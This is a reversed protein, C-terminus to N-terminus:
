CGSPRQQECKHGSSAARIIRPVFVLGSRRHSHSWFAERASSEGHLEDCFHWLCWVVTAGPALVFLGRRWSTPENVSNKRLWFLPRVGKRQRRGLLDPRPDSLDLFLWGGFRASFKASFVGLLWMGKLHNKLRSPFSCPNIISSTVIFDSGNSRLKSSFHAHMISPKIVSSRCVRVKKGMLFHFARLIKLRTSQGPVPLSGSVSRALCKSVSPQESGVPLRTGGSIQFFSPSSASLNIELRARGDTSSEDESKWVKQAFQESRTFCFPSAVAPKHCRFHLSSHFSSPM